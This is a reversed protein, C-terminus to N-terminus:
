VREQGKLMRIVRERVSMKWTKTRYFKGTALPKTKAEKRTM